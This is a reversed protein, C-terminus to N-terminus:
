EKQDVTLDSTPREDKQPLKLVEPGEGEKVELGKFGFEKAFDALQEKSGTKFLNLILNYQKPNIVQPDRDKLTMLKLYHKSAQDKSLGDITQKGVIVDWYLKLVQDMSLIKNVQFSFFVRSLYDELRELFHPHTILQGLYHLGCNLEERIEEFTKGQILFNYIKLRNRQMWWEKKKKEALKKLQAETLEPKSKESM